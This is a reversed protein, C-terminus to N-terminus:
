NNCRVLRRALRTVAEHGPGSRGTFRSRYWLWQVYDFLWRADDLLPADALGLRGYAGLLVSTEGPGADHMALFGAIDMLPDGRGGYEWDVLWLGDGDDLINLHHADNHCVAPRRPSGALRAFGREARRSLEAALRDKAPLLSALRHAQREFSVERLDVPVPLGHLRDFLRGVRRLNVTDLADERRWTRGRVFRTVLLGDSPECALVEPAVGAASAVELLRCESDRDVGLRAADPSALRAYWEAGGVEIRWTRNSLGGGLETVGGEALERTSDYRGLRRRLDQCDGDNGWADRADAM